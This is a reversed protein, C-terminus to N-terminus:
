HNLVCIEFGMWSKLLDSLCDNDDNDDDDDFADVGVDDDEEVVIHRGVEM